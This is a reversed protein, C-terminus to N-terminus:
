AHWVGYVQIPTASSNTSLLVGWGAVLGALLISWNMLVGNGTATIEPPQAARSSNAARRKTVRCEGSFKDCLLRAIEIRALVSHRNRVDRFPENAVIITYNKASGTSFNRLEM